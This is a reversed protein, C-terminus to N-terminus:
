ISGKKAKKPAQKKIKAWAKKVQSSNGKIKFTINSKCGSFAKSGVQKLGRGDLKVTALKKCDYFAKANIKRLKKDTGLNVKKLQKCKRFAGNHINRIFKAGGDLGSIQQFKGEKFVRSGIERIKFANATTVANTNTRNYVYDLYLRGGKANDSKLLTMNAKTITAYGSGDVSYNVGVHRNYGNDQHLIVFGDYDTTESNSLRVWVNREGIPTNDAKTVIGTFDLTMKFVIPDSSNLAAEIQATKTASRNLVNLIIQGNNGVTYGGDFVSAGIYKDENFIDNAVTTKLVNDSLADGDDQNGTIGQINKLTVEGTTIEKVAELATDAELGNSKDLDDLGIQGVKSNVKTINSVSVMTTANDSLVVNINNAQDFWLLNGDLGRATATIYM